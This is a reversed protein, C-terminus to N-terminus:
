PIGLTIGDLSSVVLPVMTLLVFAPLVCTVLPLLMLVPLRRARAQALQRQNHRAEDAARALSAGLPAGDRTASVIVTLPRSLAAPVARSMDTIADALSEGSDLRVVTAAVIAGLEAGLWPRVVDLAHPLSLGAGVAVSLQDLFEPLSRSISTTRRREVSRERGVALAIAIFPGVVIAPPVVLAGLLAMVFLRDVTRDSVRALSPLMPEVHPRIVAMVSRTRGTADAVPRPRRHVLEMM